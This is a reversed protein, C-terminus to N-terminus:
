ITIEKELEDRDVQSSERFKEMDEEALKLARLLKKLLGPDIIPKTKM